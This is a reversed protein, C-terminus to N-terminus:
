GKFCSLSLYSHPWLQPNVRQSTLKSAKGSKLTHHRGRTTKKKPNGDDESEESSSDDLHALFQDVKATLFSNGCLDKISPQKGELQDQPPDRKELVTNCLRLAELEIRMQKLMSSEELVQNKKKEQKLLRQLEAMLCPKGLQSWSPENPRSDM